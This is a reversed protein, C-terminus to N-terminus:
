EIFKSRMKDFADLLESLNASQGDVRPYSRSDGRGPSSERPSHQHLAAEPEQRPYASGSANTRAALWRERRNRANEPCRTDERIEDEILSMADQIFPARRIPPLSIQILMLIRTWDTRGDPSMIHAPLDSNLDPVQWTKLQEARIGTLGAWYNVKKACWKLLQVSDGNEMYIDITRTLEHKWVIPLTFGEFIHMLMEACMPYQKPMPEPRPQSLFRTMELWQEMEALVHTDFRPTCKQKRLELYICYVARTWDTQGDPSTITHLYEPPCADFIHNLNDRGAFYNINYAMHRMLKVCDADAHYATKFKDLDHRWMRGPLQPLKTEYIQLMVDLCLPFPAPMGSAKENVSM